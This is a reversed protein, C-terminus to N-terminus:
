VQLGEGRASDLGVTDGVDVRGSADVAGIQRVQVIREDGPYPLLAIGVQGDLGEAAQDLLLHASDGLV